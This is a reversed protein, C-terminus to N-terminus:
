TVPNVDRLLGAGGAMRGDFKGPPCAVFASANSSSYIFGNLFRAEIKPTVTAVRASM